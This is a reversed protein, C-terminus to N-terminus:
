SRLKMGQITASKIFGGTLYTRGGETVLWVPLPQLNIKKASNVQKANKEFYASM